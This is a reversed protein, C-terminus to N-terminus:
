LVKYDCTKSFRTGLVDSVNRHVINAINRSNYCVQYISLYLTNTSHQIYMPRTRANLFQNECSV